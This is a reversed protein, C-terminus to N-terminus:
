IQMFDSFLNPGFVNYIIVKMTVIAIFIKTNELVYTM